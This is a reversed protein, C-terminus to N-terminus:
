WPTTGKAQHKMVGQGRGRESLEGGHFFDEGRRSSGRKKEHDDEVKVGHGGHIHGSKSRKTWAVYAKLIGQSGHHAEEKM